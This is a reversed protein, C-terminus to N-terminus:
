LFCWPFSPELESWRMCHNENAGLLFSANQTRGTPQRTQLLQDMYLPGSLADTILGQFQSAGSNSGGDEPHRGSSSATLLPTPAEVRDTEELPLCSAPLFRRPSYNRAKFRRKLPSYVCDYGKKRCNACAASPDASLDSPKHCKVKRAKCADCVHSLRSQLM